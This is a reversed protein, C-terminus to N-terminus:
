YYWEPHITIAPQHSCDKIIATVKNYIDHNIVGIESILDWPFFEFVLFESQKRRKRDDDRISDFWYKSNIVEWDLEGLQELNDYQISFVMEAHGGTFFFPIGFNRIDEATSVIHVIPTQGDPYGPVNGRYNVYLMPSRPCFYFPVYDWLTGRMSVMVPRMARREKIHQYAISRACLGRESSVRDCQLGGENIMGQLNDIHTIHYINTM